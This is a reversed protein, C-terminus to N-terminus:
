KLLYPQKLLISINSLQLAGIPTIPFGHHNAVKMIRSVEDTNAHKVVVMPPFNLDETEDHGYEQRTNEDTFVFEKGVILILEDVIQNM